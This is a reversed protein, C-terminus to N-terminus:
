LIKGLQGKPTYRFKAWYVFQDSLKEYIPPIRSVVLRSRTYSKGFLQFVTPKLISYYCFHWYFKLILHGKRSSWNTKTFQSFTVEQRLLFLALSQVTTSMFIPSLGIKTTFSWVKWYLYALFWFKQTHSYVTYVYMGVQLNSHKLVYNKDISEAFGHSILNQFVVM